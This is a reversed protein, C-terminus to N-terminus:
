KPETQTRKVAPVELCVVGLNRKWKIQETKM